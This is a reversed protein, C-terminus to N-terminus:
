SKRFPQASDGDDIGEGIGDVAKLRNKEFVAAESRDAVIQQEEEGEPDTRKQDSCWEKFARQLLEEPKRRGAASARFAFFRNVGQPLTPRKTAYVCSRPGRVLGRLWGRM